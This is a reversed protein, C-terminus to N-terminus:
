LNGRLHRKLIPIIIQPALLHPLHSHTSFLEIISKGGVSQHLYQAVSVPVM